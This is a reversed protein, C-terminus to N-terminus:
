GAINKSSNSFKETKRNWILENEGLKEIADGLCVNSACIFGSGYTQELISIRSGFHSKLRTKLTTSRYSDWTLVGKDRLLLRYDDRLTKILFGDYNQFLSIELKEM